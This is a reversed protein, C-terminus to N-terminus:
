LSPYLELLSGLTQSIPSVERDAATAQLTELLQAALETTHSAERYSIGRVLSLAEMLPHDELQVASALVDLKAVLLSRRLAKVLDELLQLHKSRKYSVKSAILPPLEVCARHLAKTLHHVIQSADEESLM